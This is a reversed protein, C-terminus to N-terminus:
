TGQADRPADSETETSESPETADEMLVLLSVHLAALGQMLRKQYEAVIITQILVVIGVVIASISAWLPGGNVWADNPYDDFRAIQRRATVCSETQWPVYLRNAMDVEQVFAMAGHTAAVLRARNNGLPTVQVVQCKALTADSFVSMLFGCIILVSAGLVLPVLGTNMLHMHRTILSLYLLHLGVYVGTFAICIIPLLPEIEVPSQLQNLHSGLFAPASDVSNCIHVSGVSTNMTERKVVYSGIHAANRHSTSSPDYGSTAVYVEAWADISHTAIVRCEDYVPQIMYAFYVFTRASLLLTCVSQVLLLHRM